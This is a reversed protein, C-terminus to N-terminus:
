EGLAFKPLPAWHTFGSGPSWMGYVAVGAAKNILQLKVGRPTNSDCKKWFYNPDVAAKGDTSIQHAMKEAQVMNWSCMGQGFLACAPCGCTM